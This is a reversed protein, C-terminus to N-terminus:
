NLPPIVLLTTEACDTNVPLAVAAFIPPSSLMTPQKLFDRRSLITRDLELAGFVQLASTRSVCHIFGKELQLYKPKPFMKRSFFFTNNMYPPTPPEGISM